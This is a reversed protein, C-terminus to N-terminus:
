AKARETAWAAAREAVMVIATHCNGSPLTPLVSGDAIRLGEVGRVRLQPDVVALDDIGMKCSGAYHWYSDVNKSLFTRLGDDNKAQDAPYVEGYTADQMAKTAIIGRGVHMAEVMRDMDTSESLYNADILPQDQHNASALRVSGRSLPRVLGTIIAALSWDQLTPVIDSPAHVFALQLDPGPWGPSSKAFLCSESLNIHGRPLEERFKIVPGVVLAHDHFNGGVGPLDVKVEVGVKRLHEAPGIGSLMLLKPSGVGGASVFVEREARAEELKGDRLYEVGV